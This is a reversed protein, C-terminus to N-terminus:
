RRGNQASIAFESGAVGKLKRLRAKEDTVNDELM